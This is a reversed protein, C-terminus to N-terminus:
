TEFEFLRRIHPADENDIEDDTMRSEPFAHRPMRIITFRFHDPPVDGSVLRVYERDVGKYHEYEGRGLQKVSFTKDTYPRRFGVVFQTAGTAVSAFGRGLPIRLGEAASGLVAANPYDEGGHASKLFRIALREDHELTSLLVQPSERRVILDPSTRAIERMSRDYEKSLQAGHSEFFAVILDFAREKENESVEGNALQEEFAHIDALLHPPRVLPCDEAHDGSLPCNCYACQDEQQDPFSEVSHMPM